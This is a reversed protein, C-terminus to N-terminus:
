VRAIEVQQQLLWNCYQDAHERVVFMAVAPSETLAYVRRVAWAETQGIGPMGVVCRVVDYLKMELSHAATFPKILEAV